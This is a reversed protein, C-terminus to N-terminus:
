PTWLTKMGRWLKLAALWVPKCADLDVRRAEFEPSKKGFRVVWAGTVDEGSMEEWATAYAAVQLASEPYLGSSTKWDIVVVEKDNWGLCDFTGAYGHMLSYVMIESKNLSLDQEKEWAYFSEITESYAPPIVPEEERLIADILRHAVTGYDAAEERVQDPKAKAEAILADISEEDLTMVPRNDLLVERVQQLATNRAWPVLAPKNIVSSLISTVSPLSVPEEGEVTVEYRRSRGDIRRITTTM